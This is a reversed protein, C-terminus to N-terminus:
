ETILSHGLWIAGITSFSVVYALYSPWQAFFAGLLDRQGAVLPVAIDLVLLTTAIAFVGDSFAEMRQTRMRRRGQPEHSPPKETDDSMEEDYERFRRLGLPSQRMDFWRIM